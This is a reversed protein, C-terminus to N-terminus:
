KEEYLHLIDYEFLEKDVEIQIIEKAVTYIDVKEGQYFMKKVEVVNLGTKSSLVIYKTNSTIKNKVELVALHTEKNYGRVIGIFEGPRYYEDNINMLMENTTVNGLIFGHGTIRNEGYNIISEYGDFDLIQNNYYDDICKRYSYIIFALYHQSKMRGEIKLSSVGAKILEPVYRILCLDKSSISLYDEDLFMKKDDEYFHYKWRCSHACGGRNPDRSCMLESLLCKGSYSSCMGGHIFVELELDTNKRIDKINDLSCERGLVVRSAGLRKMANVGDSNMISLQTSMHTELSISKALSAIYISSVIIADVGIEKLSKLYELTDVNDSDHMVMNCAVYVKKNLKHAFEVGEKIDELTFNSAASRLSFRKGGIYVADAGYILAIKLRDLDGAPALLEIRKDM